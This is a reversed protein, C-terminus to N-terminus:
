TTSRRAYFWIPKQQMKKMEQKKDIVREWLKMYSGSAQIVIIQAIKSIENMGIYLLQFIKRQEDQM